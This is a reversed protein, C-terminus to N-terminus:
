LNLSINQSLQSIQELIENYEDKIANISQQTLSSFRMDVIVENNESVNM